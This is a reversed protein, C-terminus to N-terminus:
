RTVYVYDLITENAPFYNTGITQNNNLYYGDKNENLLIYKNQFQVTLGFTNNPDVNTLNASVYLKEKGTNLYDIIQKQQTQTLYYDAQYLVSKFSTPM